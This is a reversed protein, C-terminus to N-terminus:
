SNHSYGGKGQRRRVTNEERSSRWRCSVATSAKAPRKRKETTSLRSLGHEKRMRARCEIRGVRGLHHPSGHLTSGLDLSVIAGRCSVVAYKDRALHDLYPLAPDPPHILLCVPWPCHLGRDKDAVRPGLMPQGLTAAM